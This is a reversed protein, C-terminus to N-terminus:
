RVSPPRNAPRLSANLKEPMNLVLRAIGNGSEFYITEFEM